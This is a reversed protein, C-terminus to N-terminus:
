QATDQMKSICEVDRHLVAISRWVFFHNTLVVHSVDLHHILPSPWEGLHPLLEIQLVFMVVNDNHKVFLSACTVTYLVAFAELTNSRPSLSYVHKEGREIM